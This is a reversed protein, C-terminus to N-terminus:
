KEAVIIKENKIIKTSNSIQILYSGSPLAGKNFSFLNEGQHCNAHYIEKVLKGQMDFLNISIMEDNESIFKVNCVDYVPNPFLLIKPEIKNTNQIGDPQMTTQISSVYNVWDATNNGYTTYGYITPPNSSLDRSAGSYDGWRNGQGGGSLSQAYLNVVGTGAKITIPNSVNFNRDVFVAATSPYDNISCYNYCIIAAQDNDHYGASAIAPYSCDTSPVKILQNQAVWATGNNTIRSYNICSFGNGDDCHFVFHITGNQYYGDMARDDGTMLQVSTGKQIANSAVSYNPITIKNLTLTPNNGVSDSITYFNIKSPRATSVLYMTNGYGGNLGNGMPVMTFPSGAISHWLLSNNVGYNSGAFGISKQIQYIVSELYKGSGSFMNSTIFLDSNSVALKPYDAWCNGSNIASPSGNFSYTWWGQTPDNSQSFAVLMKSPVNNTNCTQCYVIFRDAQNDYMVKPDCVVDTSALVSTFFNELGMSSQLTGGNTDYFKITSNVVVILQANKNVALSNDSPCGGNTLANFGNVFVPENNKANKATARYLNNEALYKTKIKFNEAKIKEIAEENEGENESVRLHTLQPLLTLDNSSPKVFGGSKIEFPICKADGSKISKDNAFISTSLLLIFSCVSVIKKM